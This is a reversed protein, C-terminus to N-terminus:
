SHFGNRGQLYGKITDVASKVEGLQEVIGDQKDAIKNLKELRAASNIKIAEIDQRMVQHDGCLKRVEGPCQRRETPRGITLLGHKKLAVGVATLAAIVAAAGSGVQEPTFTWVMEM